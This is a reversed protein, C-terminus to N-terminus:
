DPVLMVGCIVIKASVFSSLDIYILPIRSAVNVFGCIMELQGYCSIFHRRLIGYCVLRSMGDGEVQKLKLPGLSQPTGDM